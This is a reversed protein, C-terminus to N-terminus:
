KRYEEKLLDSFYKEFKEVKPRTVNQVYSNEPHQPYYDQHYKEAPYFKTFKTVETAFPKSFSSGSELEEITSKILNKESDNRYFAVSRYQRGVDPGQRNVQTPDHAGIFFVRLLTQYDVVDADYYIQIAEAHTTQGSGVQRYTPNAEKGGAYGSIVYKVGKVREFVAETCWFCGGAFTAIDLGDIDTPLKAFENQDQSLSNPNGANCGILFTLLVATSFFAKFNM